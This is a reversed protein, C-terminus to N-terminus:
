PTIGAGLLGEQLGGARAGASPSPSAPRSAAVRVSPPEFADGATDYISASASPRAPDSPREGDLVSRLTRQDADTTLGKSFRMYAKGEIDSWGADTKMQALARMKKTVCWLSTVPVCITGSVILVWDYFEQHVIEHSLDGKMVFAVTISMLVHIECMMRLYNDPDTKMPWFKMHAAFFGFSMANGFAIQAESGRGVLVVLGVLCFKRLLDITEWFPLTPRYANTLFNFSGLARVQRITAEADRRDQDALQTATKDSDSYERVLAATTGSRGSTLLRNVDHEDVKAHQAKWAILAGFGVPLGFGVLFLVAVSLTHLNGGLKHLFSGSPCIIRDDDVLVYVSPSVARCDLASFCINIVQPYALFVLLLQRQGLTGWAARRGTLAGNQKAWVEAREGAWKPDLTVRATIWVVLYETLSIMFLMLPFGVVRLVWKMEFGGFSGAPVLGFMDTCEASFLVSFFDHLPALFDLVAQVMKPYHTHYVKSLQATVQLYTVVTRVPIKGSRYIDKLMDMREKSCCGCCCGSADEEEDMDDDDSIACCGNPSGPLEPKGDALSDNDPTAVDGMEQKRKEKRRQMRARRKKCCGASVLVLGLVGLGGFAMQGWRGYKTNCPQCVKDKTAHYPPTTATVCSGCFFGEYGEPCSGSTTVPHTRCRDLAHPCPLPGPPCRENALATTGYGFATTEKVSVANEEDCLFAFTFEHGKTVSEPLNQLEHQFMKKGVENKLEWEAVQYQSIFGDRLVPRGSTCNACPPCEQCTKLSEDGNWTKIAAALDVEHYGDMFCVILGYVTTNYYGTGRIGGTKGCSCQGTINSIGDVYDEHPKCDGCDNHEITNIKGPPCTECTAFQGGNSHTNGTCDSCGLMCTDVGNQDTECAAPGKGAPCKECLHHGPRPLRMSNDYSMAGVVQPHQCPKCPAGLASYNTGLCEVCTSHDALPTQGDPCTTCATRDDNVAEGDSDCISCRDQVAKTGGGDVNWRGAPCNICESDGCGDERPCYQGRGCQYPTDCKRNQDAPFTGNSCPQCVGFTSYDIGTCNDCGDRAANPGKGAVCQTCLSSDANRIMPSAIKSAAPTGCQICTGGDASTYGIECRTCDEASYCKAKRCEHGPDCRYAGTCATKGKSPTTTNLCPMCKGSVSYENDGACGECTSSDMNPQKGAPCQECALGDSSFTTERCPTCHLSYDHMSCEQGASCPYLACGQTLLGLMNTDLPINVVDQVMEKPSFATDVIRLSTSDQISLAKGSDIDQAKCNTFSSSRITVASATATIGGAGSALAEPGNFDTEVVNLVSPGDDASEVLIAGTNRASIVDSFYCGIVDITSSSGYIAGGNNATITRSAFTVNMLTAHSGGMVEVGGGNTVGFNTDPPRLSVHRLALAGAGGGGGGEAGVHFRYALVTPSIVSPIGQVIIKEGGNVPLTSLIGAPVDIAKSTLATPWTDSTYVYCTAGAFTSLM